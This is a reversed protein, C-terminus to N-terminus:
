PVDNRQVPEPPPPLAALRAKIRQFEPLDKTLDSRNAGPTHAIVNRTDRVRSEELPHTSFWGEVGAPRRAREAILEEFFSPIGNPDIGAAITNIVAESDAEQEAKRSHRAMMLSGGVNIAVQGAAGSCVSTLTCLVSVGINTKQAKEMQQVSHRRIVHGIEHGLVGALESVNDAREILGRNVYIFGGPLAFANVQRSDVVRFQWDLDARSTNSAIARGLMNVFEEVQADHVLPVQENIQAANEKGIQVEQDESIECALVSLCLGVLLLRAKLQM